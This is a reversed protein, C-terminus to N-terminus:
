KRVTLFLDKFGAKYGVKQRKLARLWFYGGIIWVAVIFALLVQLSAYNDYTTRIASAWWSFMSGFSNGFAPLGPYHGYNNRATLFLLLVYLCSVGWWATAWVGIWGLAARKTKNNKKKAAM